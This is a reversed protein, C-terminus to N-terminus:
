TKQLQQLSAIVGAQTIAVGDAAFSSRQVQGAASIHAYVRLAHETGCPDGMGMSEAGAESVALRVNGRYAQVWAQLRDIESPSVGPRSGTAQEPLLLFERAGHTHAFSVAADLEAITEANVVFNIGFPAISRVDRLRMTFADFGKGRLREYTSGVGDMSLRIFNVNGELRSLLKPRLHHGHTTFTVALRTQNIAFECLDGFRPHLTPEGGGFGVGLAGHQDLECLWRCVNDYDLVEHLKPAYCYSCDLDCSNTLAISIQRPAVDWCAEPPHIEEVLVNLGSNRNFYHLGAPSIRIKASSAPM